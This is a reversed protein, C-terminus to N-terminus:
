QWITKQAWEATSQAATVNNKRTANGDNRGRGEIRITLPYSGGGWDKIMPSARRSM